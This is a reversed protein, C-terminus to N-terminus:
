IQLHFIDKFKHKSFGTSHVGVGRYSLKLGLFFEDKNFLSPFICRSNLIISSLKPCTMKWAKSLEIHSHDGLYPQAAWCVQLYMLWRGLAGGPKEKLGFCGRHRARMCLGERSLFPEM